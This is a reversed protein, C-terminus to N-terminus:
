LDFIKGPNLINNPDFGSKIKKMLEIQRTDVFMPLLEKKVMGIGHEGSVVGKFSLGLAHIEQRVADFKQQWGPIETWVGEKWTAKMINTHVNGDAAHGFTPLWMGSKKEIAHVGEPGEVM